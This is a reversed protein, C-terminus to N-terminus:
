RLDVVQTGAPVQSAEYSFTSAPVSVKTKYNSLTITFRSGDKMQFHASRLLNSGNTIYLYIKSIDSKGKPQLMIAYQGAIQGAAKWMNCNKKFSQAAAMPNTMSLEAATPTTVNVEQTASSYTWQTKGDYWCKVDKSLMRFKSGSIVITGSMTGQSSKISYGASVTGSLAAIAKDLVQQPTQASASLALLAVIMMFIRKM